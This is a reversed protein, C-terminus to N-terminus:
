KEEPEIDIVEQKGIEPYAAKLPTEQSGQILAINLSVQVPAVNDNLVGATRAVMKLLGDHKLILEPNKTYEQLGLQQLALVEPLLAENAGTFWEGLGSAIRSMREQTNPCNKVKAVCARVYRYSTGTIKVIDQSKYGGRLLIGIQELKNLNMTRLISGLIEKGLEVRQEKTLAKNENNTKKETM